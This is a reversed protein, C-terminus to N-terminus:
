KIQNYNPKDYGIKHVAVSPKSQEQFHMHNVHSPNINANNYRWASSDCMKFPEHDDAKYWYVIDEINNSKSGNNIVMCGYDTTVEDMTECFSKFDPFVGAYNEYLRKRNATNNERMIFVYDINTRLDPKIGLPYHQILFYNIALHRGNMFIERICRDRLWSTDYSVDDMVLFGRPDLKSYRKSKPNNRDGATKIKMDMQRKMFKSVVDASYESHIFIPPIFDSYFPNVNESGCIVQGIPFDRKHYLIDRLLFSKGVKRKGIIVCVAGDPIDALSFRKLNLQKQESTM